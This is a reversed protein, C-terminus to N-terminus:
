PRPERSISPPPAASTWQEAGAAAASRADLDTAGADPWEEIASEVPPAGSAGGMEPEAPPPTEQGAQAAQAARLAAARRNSERVVDQSAAALEDLSVIGRESEWLPVLALLLRATTRADGAARHLDESPLALKASLEVLTNGGSGFLGRALGLTDIVPGLLPPAGAQRLLAALFRLDFAANHFVLPLGACARAIAHAVEAPEAGEALMSETIGHVRVADPPIPRPPGVLSSWSEGIVGDQVDVRAVELVSHGGPPSWGTTEIDLVALRQGSLIPL